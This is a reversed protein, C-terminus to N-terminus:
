MAFRCAGVSLLESPAHQHHLWRALAELAAGAIAESGHGIPEVELM